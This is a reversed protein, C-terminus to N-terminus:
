CGFPLINFVKSKRKEETGKSIFVKVDYLTTLFMVVKSSFKSRATCKTNSALQEKPNLVRPTPPLNDTQEATLSKQILYPPLCCSARQCM